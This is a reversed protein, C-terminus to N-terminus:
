EEVRFEVVLPLHDAVRRMEEASLPMPIKYSGEVIEPKMQDNYLIYDLQREPQNAPHTLLVTGATPNIMSVRMEPRLFEQLEESDPYSNFDGVMMLNATEREKMFRAFQGKLFRYQGQRTAKDDQNRGAKLHVGTLTFVYDENPLVDVSWMRTNIQHQSAQTGDENIKGVIPTLVRGYGYHTGLPVRSMVVVNMYWTPSESASFYKYGLEPFKDRALARAFNEGEFEQLVVVDADIAKLATTLLAVREVMEARPNDERNNEIYPNDFGDVFHEVNWSLLRLTETTVSDQAPYAMGSAVLELHSTNGKNGGCGAILLVLCSLVSLAFRNM